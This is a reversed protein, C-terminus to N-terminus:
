DLPAHFFWLHGEPDRAGYERVGYDQDTPEEVILAGAAVAQTYHAEPDDVVVVIMGTTAGLSAPSRYDDAAPHLWAVHDGARVEAHRVRGAADVDRPGATLGFVRVLYDQAAGVDDYVLLATTSRIPTDLMAMEELITFLDNTSPHADRGIEACMAALRTRLRATADLRSTTDALHRQLALPLHWRPQDIATAIEDLHLGLRRLLAVRYLRTVDDRTYLRHGGASRRSPRCLGLADYHHLARVTLGTRAALAGVRWLEAPEQDDLTSVSM